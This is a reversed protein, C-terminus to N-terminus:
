QLFYTGAACDRALDEASPQTSIEKEASLQGPHQPREDAARSQRDLKEALVRQAAVEVFCNEAGQAMEKKRGLRSVFM